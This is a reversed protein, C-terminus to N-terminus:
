QKPFNMKRLLEQFRPDFRRPNSIWDVNLFALMSDRAENAQQLWYLSQDREGLGIYATALDYSSVYRNKSRAKLNELASSAEAKQGALGSACALLALSYPDGGSLDLAKQLEKQAEDYMHKGLYAM